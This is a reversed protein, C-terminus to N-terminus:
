ASKMSVALQNDIISQYLYNIPRTASKRPVQRPVRRGVSRELHWSLRRNHRNCSLGHAQHQLLFLGTASAVAECPYSSAIL